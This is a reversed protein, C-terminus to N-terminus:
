IQVTDSVEVTDASVSNQKVASDEEGSQTKENWREGRM